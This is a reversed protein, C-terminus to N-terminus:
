FPPRTFIGALSHQEVLQFGASRFAEELGRASPASRVAYPGGSGHLVFATRLGFLDVSPRVVQVEPSSHTVLVRRVPWSTLTASGSTLTLEGISV